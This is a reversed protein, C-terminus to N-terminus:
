IKIDTRIYRLYAKKYVLVCLEGVKLFELFHECGPMLSIKTKFYTCKNQVSLKSIDHKGSLIIIEM